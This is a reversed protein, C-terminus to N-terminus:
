QRKGALYVLNDLGKLANADKLGKVAENLTASTLQIQKLVNEDTLKSNGVDSLISKLMSLNKTFSESVENTVKMIKYVQEAEEKTIKIEPTVPVASRQMSSIENLIARQMEEEKEYYYETEVRKIDDQVEHYKVAQADFVSLFLKGIALVIISKIEFPVSFGLFITPGEKISILLIAAGLLPLATALADVIGSYRDIIRDIGDGSANKMSIEKSLANNSAIATLIFVIYAIFPLWWFKIPEIGPNLLQTGPFLTNAFNQAVNGLGPVSSVDIFISIILFILSPIAATIITKSGEAKVKDINKNVLYKRIETLETDFTKLSNIRQELNFSGRRPTDVQEATQTEAM